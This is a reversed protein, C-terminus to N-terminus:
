SSRMGNEGLLFLTDSLLNDEAVANEGLLRSNWIVCGTKKWRFRLFGFPCTSSIVSPEGNALTSM